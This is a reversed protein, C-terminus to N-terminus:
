NTFSEVASSEDPFDSVITHLNTLRLIETVRASLEVARLEVGNKKATYMARVLQGVGSSDMYTLGHCNLVIRKRGSRFLDVLLDHIAEGEAMTFRGRIDLVTVEGLQRTSAGFTL